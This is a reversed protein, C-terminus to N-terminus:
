GQTYSSVRPAKLAPMRRDACSIATLYAPSNKGNWLTNLHNQNSQLDATVLNLACLDKADLEQTSSSLAGFQATWAWLVPASSPMWPLMLNINAPQSNPQCSTLRHAGQTLHQKSLNEQHLVFLSNYCLLAWSLSPFVSHSRLPRQQMPSPLRDLCGVPVLVPLM